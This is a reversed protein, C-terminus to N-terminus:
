KSKEDAIKRRKEINERKEKNKNGKMSDWTLYDKTLELYRKYSDKSEDTNLKAYKYVADHGDWAKSKKVSYTNYNEFTTKTCTISKIMEILKPKRDDLYGNFGGNIRYTIYIIDDKDAYDNLDISLNKSWYWGASDVCYPLEGLKKNKPSTTFDESKYTGYSTYNKRGTIQILGRGKFKVGDGTETNGLDKRGEYASGSAIEEQYVFEGSEHRVQALFHLKRECSNISYNKLTSNIAELFKDANAKSIGLSVLDASTFDRDCFCGGTKTEKKAPAVTEMTKICQCTKEFGAEKALQMIPKGNLGTANKCFYKDDLYVTDFERVDVHIWSFTHDFRVNGKSDYLLDIPEISYLNKAPWEKQAGLYKIYINDRIDRLPELNKKQEGRIAWTGKSFQIDIAKGQHNTTTYNKFRCRYGSTIQDIKYTTQKSFYFQLAKIGFLLSRHIGPYEYRHFKESKANGGYTDKGTGDGFGACSNLEKVDRLKSTAQKGKTSCSCKLESWSTASIDFKLSFDDIAMLVNGCVKGTEPVKMYDKQFQKVMKETRDTFEDTPVNGGFGALRINIERILESKPSGKKICFKEGCDKGKVESKVDSVKAVTTSEAPEHKFAKTDVDIVTSKIHAKSEIVEIDVFLEQTSGEFFDDGSSKPIKDLSLNIAFDDGTVTFNKVLLLENETVDEEYLKFRIEKGKLGTSKINVRLASQKVTGSIPRGNVDSFTVSAIGAKGQPAAAAAATKPQQVPVNKKFPPVAPKPPQKKDALHDETETKRERQFDPNRVNVNASAKTEGSAFATVYYEHKSGESSDGKALHANAVKKFDPKLVFQKHAVGKDGVEVKGDDVLNKENESSHGDGAADDEWLSVYIFQGNLGTTEVHANIIEGYALPQSIPNNNIDSLKVSLIEAKESAEVNVIMSGAGDPDPENLFAIIKYKNDTAKEQFRFHGENKELIKQPNTDNQLYYLEWKVNAPNRDAEPTGAFWEEVEYNEWEGVKVLNKGKITKVGSKTMEENYFPIKLSDGEKIDLRYSKPSFLGGGFEALPVQPNAQVLDTETIGHQSCISQVTDEKKVIHTKFDNYGKEM